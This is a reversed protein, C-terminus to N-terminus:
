GIRIYFELFLFLFDCIKKYLGCFIKDTAAEKGINQTQESKEKVYIYNEDM